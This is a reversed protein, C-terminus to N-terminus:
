FYLEKFIQHPPVSVGLLQAEVDNVMIQNGCLYFDSGPLNAEEQVVHETVRGKKGRWSEPPQSLTLIFRFNPYKVALEQFDGLWYLDEEHRMGWYLTVDDTGGNPLYDLLMSRYPAIGSGTAILIKKRHSEKDLTFMGLPAMFTATDGVNRAITWKSGPGNPFTDHCMLIQTKESPPSAISMTRNVGPEINLMMTQGAIFTIESPQQLKFTVMYVHTTVHEKKEIIATCKQPKPRDM